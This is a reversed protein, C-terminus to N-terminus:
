GAKGTTNKGVSKNRGEAERRIQRAQEDYIEKIIVKDSEYLQILIENSLRSLYKIYRALLEKYLAQREESVGVKRMDIM